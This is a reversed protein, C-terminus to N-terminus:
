RGMLDKKRLENEDAESKSPSMAKPPQLVVLWSGCIEAGMCGLAM